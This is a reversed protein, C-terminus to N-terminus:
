QPSAAPKADFPVRGTRALRAVLMYTGIVFLMETVARDSFHSRVAATTAPTAEVRDMVEDTWAFVAQETASFCAAAPEDRDLADIQADSVGVSRAVVANQRWAYESSSRRAVRLVIMRELAKDLDLPQFLRALYSMFPPFLTEANAMARFVNIDPLLKFARAVEDGAHAPDVLHLTLDTDTDPM